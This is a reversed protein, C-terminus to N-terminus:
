PSFREQLHFLLQVTTLEKFKLVVLLIVYVMRNANYKQIEAEPQFSHVSGPGTHIGM